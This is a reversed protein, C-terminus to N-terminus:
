ARSLALGATLVHFAARVVLEAPGFDDLADGIVEALAAFIRAPDTM